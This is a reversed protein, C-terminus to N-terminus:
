GWAEILLADGDSCGDVAKCGRCVQLHRQLKARALERGVRAMQREMSAALGRFAKADHEVPRRREYGRIKWTTMLASSAADDRWRVFFPLQEWDEVGDPAEADYHRGDCYIWVHWYDASDGDHVLDNSDVVVLRTVGAELLEGLLAEAFDACDGSNIAEPKVPDGDRGWTAVNKRILDAIM